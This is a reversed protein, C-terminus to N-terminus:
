VSSGGGGPQTPPLPPAGPAAPPQEVKFVAGGILGGITCFAAALLLTLFFGILIGMPGSMRETVSVITDVTEPSIGAQELGEILEDLDPPGMMAQFMGGVVTSAIAYFMASVLGITAGNGARFEAGIAKVQNSYLFAALVGAGIMWACCLCGVLPIGGLVGFVAGGILTPRLMSPSSNDM